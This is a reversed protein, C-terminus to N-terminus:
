ATPPELGPAVVASSPQLHGRGVHRVPKELEPVFHTVPTRAVGDVAVHSHSATSSSSKDSDVDPKDHDRAAEVTDSTGFHHDDAHASATPAHVGAAHAGHTHAAALGGHSLVLLAGVIITLIQRVFPASARTVAASCATFDNRRQITGGNYVHRHRGEDVTSITREAIDGFELLLGIATSALHCATPFVFM